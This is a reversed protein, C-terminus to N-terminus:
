SLQRSVPDAMVVCRFGLTWEAAVGSNEPQQDDQISVDKASKGDVFLCYWYQTPSKHLVDHQRAADGGRACRVAHGAFLGTAIRPQNNSQGDECEHNVRAGDEDKRL